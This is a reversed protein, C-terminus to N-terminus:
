YADGRDIFFPNHEAEERVSTIPGHGPLLITDPPLKLLRKASELLTRYYKPGEYARGLSGAFLTDGVLAVDSILYAVHGLTHGPMQWVEIELAGLRITQEDSIEQLSGFDLEMPNGIVPVELSTAILELSEIHDKHGHTAMIGVPRWEEEELAKLIVNYPGGPDVIVTDRTNADAILYCNSYAYDFTLVKIYVGAHIIGNVLPRSQPFWSEQVSEWLSEPELGLEMGLKYTLEKNPHEKYSEFNQLLTSSIRVKEGVEDITKGLGYRAKKIIDGFEDELFM